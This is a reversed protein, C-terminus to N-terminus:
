ANTRSFILRMGLDGPSWAECTCGDEMCRNMLNIEQAMARELSETPDRAQKTYTQTRTYLNLPKWMEITGGLGQM